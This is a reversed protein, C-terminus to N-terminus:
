LLAGMGWDRNEVSREMGIAAESKPFHAAIVLPM